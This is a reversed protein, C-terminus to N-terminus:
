SLVGDAVIECKDNIVEAFGGTITVMDSVTDNRYIKVNGARLTTAFPTHRPLVGFDGEEGPIVVMSVDGKYLTRDPTILRLDLQENLLQKAM